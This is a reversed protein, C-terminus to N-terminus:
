RLADSTARSTFTAGSGGPFFNAIVTVAAWPYTVDVVIPVLRATPGSSPIGADPWVSWGTGDGYRTAVTVLSADLPLVRARVAADIASPAATPHLAAWHAGEAGANRVTVYANLGRGLDLIGLLLLLLVPAALALEVTTSGSPSRLLRM